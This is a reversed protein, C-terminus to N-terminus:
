AEDARSAVFYIMILIPSSHSELYLDHYMIKFFSFGREASKGMWVWMCIMGLISARIM